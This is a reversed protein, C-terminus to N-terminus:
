QILLLRSNKLGRVRHTLQSPIQVFDMTEKLEVSRDEEEYVVAGSILILLAETMSQHEKLVAGAAIELLITSANARLIKNTSIPKGFSNTFDQINM